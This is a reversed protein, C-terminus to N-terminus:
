TVQVLASSASPTGSLSVTITSTADKKLENPVGSLTATTDAAFATISFSCILIISLFLTVLKKM